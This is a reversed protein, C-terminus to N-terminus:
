ASAPGSAGTSAMASELGSTAPSVVAGASPPGSPLEPPPVQRTSPGTQQPPAGQGLWDGGVSQVLQPTNGDSGPSAAPEGEGRTERDGRDDQQGHLEM